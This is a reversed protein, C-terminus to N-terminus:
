AAAKTSVALRHRSKRYTRAERTRRSDETSGLREGPRFSSHPSTSGELDATEWSLAELDMALLAPIGQSARDLPTLKPKPRTQAYTALQQRLALEVIAQQNRSRFFALTSRLLVTMLDLLAQV